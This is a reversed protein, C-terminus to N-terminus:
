NRSGVAMVHNVSSLPVRVLGDGSVAYAYPAHVLGIVMDMVEVTDPDFEGPVSSSPLQPCTPDQRAPFLCLDGTWAETIPIGRFWDLMIHSISKYGAKRIGKVAGIPSNFPHESFFKKFPDNGEGLVCEVGNGAWTGCTMDVWDIRLEHASKVSQSIFKTVRSRWLPHRHMSSYKKSSAINGLSEATSM